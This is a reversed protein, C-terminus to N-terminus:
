AAVHAVAKSQQPFFEIWRAFSDAFDQLRNRLEDDARGTEDFSRDARALFLMPQPM